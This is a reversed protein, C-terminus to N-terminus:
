NLTISVTESRVAAPSGVNSFRKKARGKYGFRPTIIESLTYNDDTKIFVLKSVGKWGDGGGLTTLGALRTRGTEVDRIALSSSSTSSSLPGVVYEGAEYHVNAAEFDFPIQVRYQANASVGFIMASGILLCAQFLTKKM